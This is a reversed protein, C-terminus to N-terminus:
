DVSSVRALGAASTVWLEGRPDTTMSTAREDATGIALEPRRDAAFRVATSLGWFAIWLRGDALWEVGDPVWDGPGEFQWAIRWDAALGTDPDYDAIALRRSDSECFLMTRGDSSWAIGNPCGMETLVVQWRGDDDLRWLEGQEAVGDEVTNTPLVGAWVRGSPDLAADNFRFGPGPPDALVVPEAGGTLKLVGESALVILAGDATPLAAGVAGVSTFVTTTLGEITTLQALGADIDVWILGDHASSWVPHEGLLATAGPVPSAEIRRVDALAAPLSCHVAAPDVPLAGWRIM